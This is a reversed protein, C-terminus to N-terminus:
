GRGLRASVAFSSGLAFRSSDGGVLAFRSTVAVAVSVAVSVAVTVSVSVAVAVSVTASM